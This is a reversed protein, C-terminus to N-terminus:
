PRAIQVIVSSADTFLAGASGVYSVVCTCFTTITQSITLYEAYNTEDLANILRITTGVPIAILESTYISGNLKQLSTKVNTVSALVANNFAIGGVAPATSSTITSFIGYQRSPTKDISVKNWGDVWAFHSLMESTMSHPNTTIAASKDAAYSGDKYAGHLSPNRQYLKM